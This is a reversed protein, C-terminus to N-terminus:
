TDSTPRIITYSAGCGRAGNPTGPHAVGCECMFDAWSVPPAPAAPVGRISTAPLGLSRTQSFPHGCRPCPGDARLSSVSANQRYSLKVVGAQVLAAARDDLEASAVDEFHLEPTTVDLAETATTM